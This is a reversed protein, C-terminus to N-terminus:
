NGLRLDLLRQFIDILDPGSESQGFDGLIASVKCLYRRVKILCGWRNKLCLRIQDLTRGLKANDMGKFLRWFLHQVLKHFTCGIAIEVKEKRLKYVLSRPDFLGLCLEFLCLAVQLLGLKVETVTINYRLDISDNSAPVDVGAVINLDSLAQHGNAREPFDPDVGIKLFGFERVQTDALM